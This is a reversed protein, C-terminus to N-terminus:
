RKTAAESENSRPRTKSVRTVIKKKLPLSLRKLERCMTPASVRVGVAAAVTECLEELTAGSQDAVQARLVEDHGALSRQRGGGRPLAGCSGTERYRRWLKEVFAKSVQFREAVSRQSAKAELAAIIRERLDQSFARM